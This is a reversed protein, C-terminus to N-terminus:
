ASVPREICRPDDFKPNNVRTGVPHAQMEEAPYPALLRVLKDTERVAPDLWEAHDASRLIVAMRDHIPAVLANSAGTIITFTELEAGDPSRFLM